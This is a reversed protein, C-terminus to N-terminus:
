YTLAEITKQRFQPPFSATYISSYLAESLVPFVEAYLEYLHIVGEAASEIKASTDPHEALEQCAATCREFASAFDAYCFNLIEEGLPVVVTTGSFANIRRETSDYPYLPVPPQVTFTPEFKERINKLETRWTEVEAETVEAQYIEPIPHKLDEYLDLMTEFEYVPSVKIYLKKEEASCSVSNEFFSPSLDACSDWQAFYDASGSTNLVPM